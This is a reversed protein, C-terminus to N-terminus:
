SLKPPARSQFVCVTRQCALPTAVVISVPAVHPAAPFSHFPTDLASAIQAFALCQECSQDLALTKSLSTERQELQQGASSRIDSLHSVAHTIGMQQSLVLLLSLVAYVINRRLTM